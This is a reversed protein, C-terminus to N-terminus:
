TPETIPPVVVSPLICGVVLSFGSYAAASKNVPAVQQDEWNTPRTIKAGLKRPEANPQVFLRVCGAVQANECRVAAYRDPDDGVSSPSIIARCM